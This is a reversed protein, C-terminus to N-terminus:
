SWGDDSNSTSSSWGEDSSASSAGDNWGASSSPAVRLSKLIKAAEDIGGPAIDELVAMFDLSIWERARRLVFPVPSGPENREYYSCIADIAREVDRRSSIGGSFGASPGGGGGGSAAPAGDSDGQGTAEVEPEPIFKKVALKLEAIADYAPQFNTSTDGDANATLVGDARKLAQHLGDFRAVIQNLDEIPTEQLLTRFMGYNEANGGQDSFRIFDEGSYRGLRAHSLLPV